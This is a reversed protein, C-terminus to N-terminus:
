SFFVKWHDFTDSLGYKGSIVPINRYLLPRLNENLATSTGSGSFAVKVKLIAKAEAITPKTKVTECIIKM